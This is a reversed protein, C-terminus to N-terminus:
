SGFEKFITVHGETFKKVNKPVKGSKRRARTWFGKLRSVSQCVCVCVSVSVRVSKLIYPFLIKSSSTFDERFYVNRRRCKLAKRTYKSISKKGTLLKNGPKRWSFCTTHPLPHSLDTFILTSFQTALMLLKLLVSRLVNFSIMLTLYM